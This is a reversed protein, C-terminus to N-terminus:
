LSEETCVLTLNLVSLANIWNDHPVKDINEMDKTDVVFEKLNNIASEYINIDEILNGLAEKNKFTTYKDVTWWSHCGWYINNDSDRLKISLNNPGMGLSKAFDNLLDKYAAPIINVISLNNM